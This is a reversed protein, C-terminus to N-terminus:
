GIYPFIESGSTNATNLHMLLQVEAHINLKQTQRKMFERELQGLTWKHGMVAQITHQKTNLGLIDFTERLTIHRHPPSAPAPPRSVLAITIRTFSPFTLAAEKFKELTVRLRAILCISVWLKRSASSAKSSSNLM